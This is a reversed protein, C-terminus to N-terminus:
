IVLSFILDANWYNVVFAILFSPVFPVGEKIVVKKIKNQRKLRKLQKIQEQRVGLDAPGCIHKGDIVVDDVIWDGETLKEVSIPKVMAFEEVAKMSLWLFFVLLIGFVVTAVFLMNTFLGALLLLACGLVVMRVLRVRERVLESFRRRFTGLNKFLVFTVWLVGYLGGFLLLNIIFYLLENPIPMVFFSLGIFVASLITMGINLAQQATKTKRIMDFLNLGFMLIFVATVAWLITNVTYPLGFVAGLGMLLKADGGGWQGTYFLFAAVSFFFAFGFLGEFFYEFGDYFGFILRGGLATFLLAFNIWDPVERTRLDTYSAAILALASVVMLVSEM